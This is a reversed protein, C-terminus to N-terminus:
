TIKKDVIYTEELETEGELKSFIDLNGGRWIKWKKMDPTVIVFFDIENLPISKLDSGPISWFAVSIILPLNKSSPEISEVLTRLALEYNEDSLYKNLKQIDKSIDQSNFKGKSETLDIYKEPLTAIIDIFERKQTRGTGSEPLIAYDSQAGPYSINVIKFGNPQLVKHVVIYTVDDENLEDRIKLLSSRLGDSVKFPDIKYSWKLTIRTNENKDQILFAESNAFIAFLPKNLIYFYNELFETIDILNNTLNNNKLYGKSYLFNIFFGNKNLGTGRIFANLYDFDNRLKIKKFIKDSTSPFIIRSVIKKNHRYKLYWILGREPDMAHGMRNFKFLLHNGFDKHGQQWSIRSSNYKTYIPSLKYQELEHKWRKVFDLNIIETDTYKILDESSNIDDSKKSITSLINKVLKNFDEIPPPCSLFIEDRQLLTSTKLPWEFHFSLIEFHQLILAFYESIDLDTRGGHASVSEKFPSIKIYYCNGAVAGLYGDFRQLEHDETLVATSFEILLVPIEVNRIKVSLLIDPVKFKFINQLLNGYAYIHFNKSHLTILKVPTNPLVENILPLILHRAQEYCEYYIRIEDIM